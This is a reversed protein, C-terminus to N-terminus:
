HNFSHTIPDIGISVRYSMVFRNQGNYTQKDGCNDLVSLKKSAFEVCEPCQSEDVIQQTM